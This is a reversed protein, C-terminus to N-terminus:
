QKVYSGHLVYHDFLYKYSRVMQDVSFRSRVLQQAFYGLRQGYLPDKQLSLITNCLAEQDYPCVILGDKKHTIVPHYGHIGTVICPKGYSMAELLALSIGERISPQVFCDFLAYYHLADVHEIISVNRFNGSTIKDSLLQYAPGAGIIVIHVNSMRACTSILYDFRKVSVLRGVAGIVFIDPQLGLQEKTKSLLSQEILIGNTIVSVPRQVAPMRKVISEKVQDSVAVIHTAYCLTLRDFFSRICGDQDVNNHYVTVVAIGLLKACLRVSVNAAWLLSHIVRPREAQIARVLRVFFFLDYRYWKGTICVTKIGLRELQQVYPGEHFYFVVQDFDYHMLEKVLLYLVKEAGGIALSSTVHVLKNNAM